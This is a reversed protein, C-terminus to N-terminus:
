INLREKVFEISIRNKCSLLWEDIESKLFLYQNNQRLFPILKNKRLAYIVTKSLKTYNSLEEVTMYTTQNDTDHIKYTALLQKLEKFERDIKEIKDLLAQM